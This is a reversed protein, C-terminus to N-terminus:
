CVDEKKVFIVEKHDAREPGRCEGSHRMSIDNRCGHHGFFVCKKCSFQTQEVVLIEGDIDPHTFTEGIARDHM